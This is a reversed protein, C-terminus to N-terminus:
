EEDSTTPNVIAHKLETILTSATEVHALAQDCLALQNDEGYTAIFDVMSDYHEANVWDIRQYEPTELITQWDVVFKGDTQRLRCMQGLNMFYFAEQIPVAVAARLQWSTM